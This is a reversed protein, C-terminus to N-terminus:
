LVGLITAPVFWTLSYVRFWSDTREAEQRGFSLFPAM